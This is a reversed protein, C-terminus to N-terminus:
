SLVAIKVPKNYLDRLRVTDDIIEAFEPHATPEANGAFTKSDIPLGSKHNYKLWKELEQRVEERTPMGSSKSGHLTLGCECYICNFNCIKKNVPLLNIGLSNGLRRSVVPGFVIRDFLFTGM